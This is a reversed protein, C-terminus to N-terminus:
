SEVAHETHLVEHLVAQPEVGDYFEVQAGGIDHQQVKVRAHEVEVVVRGHLLVHDAARDNEVALADLKRRSDLYKTRCFDDLSPDGRNTGM